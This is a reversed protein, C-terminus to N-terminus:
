VPDDPRRGVRAAWSDGGLRAEGALRRVLEFAQRKLSGPAHCRWRRFEPDRMLEAATLLRLCKRPPRRRKKREDRM